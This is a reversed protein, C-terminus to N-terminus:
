AEHSNTKNEQETRGKRWKYVYKIAGKSCNDICEGCLICEDHKMKENKVMSNVKLSMPCKKECQKCNPCKSKDAELHLSPWEGVNKIKNGIIMFPAMWCIYHCGARRGILISMLIFAMLVFYYIVYKEPSDISIGTETMYIPNIEKFRGASVAAAIISLIWPVWIFYKIWNARGNRVRRNNVDFCFEQITAGPCLWGCYARGFVLASIFLFIFFIFSGSIIGESAGVIILYPSFFNFTIPFMLFSILLLAKRINQRTM